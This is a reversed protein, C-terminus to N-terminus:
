KEEKKNYRNWAAGYLAGIKFDAVVKPKAKM